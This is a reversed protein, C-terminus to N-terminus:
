RAWSKDKISDEVSRSKISYCDSMEMFQELKSANRCILTLDDFKRGQTNQGMNFHSKSCNLIAQKIN